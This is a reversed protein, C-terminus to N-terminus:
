PTPVQDLQALALCNINVSENHIAYVTILADFVDIEYISIESLVYSVMEVKPIITTAALQTSGPLPLFCSSPLLPEADIPLPM